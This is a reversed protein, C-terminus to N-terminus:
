ATRTRETPAGEWDAAPQAPRQPEILFRLGYDTPAGTVDSCPGVRFVACLVNQKRLAEPLEPRNRLHREIQFYVLRYMPIRATGRVAIRVGQGSVDVTEAAALHTRGHADKWVIQGPLKLRVRDATRKDARSTTAQVLRLRGEM